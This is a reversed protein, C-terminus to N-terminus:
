RSSSVSSIVISNTNVFKSVAIKDNFYYPVYFLGLSVGVKESISSEGM